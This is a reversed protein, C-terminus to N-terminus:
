LTGKAKGSSKANSELWLEISPISITKARIHYRMPQIKRVKRNQQLLEETIKPFKVIKREELKFRPMKAKVFRGVELVQPNRNLRKLLPANSSTEVKKRTERQKGFAKRIHDPIDVSSQVEREMREKYIINITKAQHLRDGHIYVDLRQLVRKM